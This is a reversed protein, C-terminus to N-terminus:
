KAEIFRMTSEYFSRRVILVQLFDLEGAKYAQESLELSQSAQPIIEQEYKKVTAISMDFEQAARALRSKISQEIRTVNEIARTYDAYAASINGTNKNWVPIPASVQLNIMGSDTGNDYGAGFQGTINPVMQVQQRKLLAAKECVLANATSLEPSQAIIENYTVDWDPIMDPTHFEAVLRVPSANPLGAIAALDKWAGIYAAESRQAALTIESLLTKSQLVEILTGEEAKQRDLAVEVGRRAVTEFKRTADLQQQAAVAEYFRVRVDTLVRHRQTEIEWRQASTTHSLVARNLQLKNGRVFEQEVYVGHQDTNQDALQQGFYGVIPNPRVGVQNRLGASKSLTASAAAIAPNNSLAMQEIDSLTYAPSADFAPAELDLNQAIVYDADSVEHQPVRVPFLGVSENEPGNLLASLSPERVGSDGEDPIFQGNEDFRFAVTKIDPVAKADQSDASHNGLQLSDASKVAPLGGSANPSVKAINIDHGVGACGSITLALLSTLCVKRDRM